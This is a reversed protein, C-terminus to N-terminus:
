KIQGEQFYKKIDEEPYEDLLRYLDSILKNEQTLDIEKILKRYTMIM